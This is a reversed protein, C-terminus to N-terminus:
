DILTQIWQLKKGKEKKGTEKKRNEESKRPRILAYGRSKWDVWEREKGPKKRRKEEAKANDWGNETRRRVFNENHIM